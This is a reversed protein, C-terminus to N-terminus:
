DPGMWDPGRFGTCRGDSMDLRFGELASGDLGVEKSRVGVIQIIQSGSM